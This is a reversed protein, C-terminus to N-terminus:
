KPVRWLYPPDLVYLNTADFAMDGGGSPLSAVVRTAGGGIPEAMLTYSAAVHAIWYVNTGDSRVAYATDTGADYVEVPTGGALQVKLIAGSPVGGSGPYRAWYLNVSDSALDEGTTGNAWEDPGADPDPSVIVTPVTRTTVNAAVTSITGPGGNIWYLNGGALTLDVPTGNNNFTLQTGQFTNGADMAGLAVKSVADNASDVFYVNTGDLAIGVEQVFCTLQSVPGGSLPVSYLCQDGSNTSFYARTADVALAIPFVTTSTTALTTEAGGAVPIKMVHGYTSGADTLAYDTWYVNVGDTAIATAQNLDSAIAVVGAEGGPGDGTSDPPADLRADTTADSGSDRGGEGPPTADTGADEGSM